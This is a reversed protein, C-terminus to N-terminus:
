PLHYSVEATTETPLQDNVQWIDKVADGFKEKLVCEIGMKMTTTSSPFSGCAGIINNFLTNGNQKNNKKSINNYYIQHLM